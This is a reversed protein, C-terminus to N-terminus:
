IGTATGQLIKVSQMGLQGHHDCMGVDCSQSSLCILDSKENTDKILQNEKPPFFKEDRKVPVAHHEIKALRNINLRVRGKM